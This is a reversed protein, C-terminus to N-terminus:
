ASHAQWGFCLSACATQQGGLVELGCCFGLYGVLMLRSDDAARQLSAATHAVLAVGNAVPDVERLGAAAAALRLLPGLLPRPWLQAPSYVAFQDALNLLAASLAQRERLEVQLLPFAVACASELGSALAEAVAADQFHMELANSLVDLCAPLATAGFISGLAPLVSPLLQVLPGHLLPPCHSNLPLLHMSMLRM